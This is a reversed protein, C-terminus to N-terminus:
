TSAGQLLVRAEKQKMHFMLIEGVTYKELLGWLLLASGCSRCAGFGQALMEDPEVGRDNQLLSSFSYEM